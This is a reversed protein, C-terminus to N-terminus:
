EFGGPTTACAWEVRVQLQLGIEPVVLPENGSDRLLLKSGCNRWGGRCRTGCVLDYLYPNKTLLDVRLEDAHIGLPNNDQVMDVLQEQADLWPRDDGAQPLGDSDLGIEEATVLDRLDDPPCFTGRTLEKLLNKMNYYDASPVNGYLEDFQAKSYCVLIDTKVYLEEGPSTSAM